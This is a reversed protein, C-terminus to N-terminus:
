PSSIKAVGFFGSSAQNLGRKRPRKKFRVHLRADKFAQISSFQDKVKSKIGLLLLRKSKWITKVPPGLSSIMIWIQLLLRQITPLKRKIPM